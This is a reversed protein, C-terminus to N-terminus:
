VLKKDQDRSNILSELTMESTDQNDIISSLTIAVPTLDLITKTNSLNRSVEQNASIDKGFVALINPSLSQTNLKSAIENFLNQGKLILEKSYM